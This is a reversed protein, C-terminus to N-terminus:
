DIQMAYGYISAASHFGAATLEVDTFGARSLETWTYLERSFDAVSYCSKLLAVPFGTNKFEKLTYGAAKLEEVSCCDRLNQVPFNVAKLGTLSIGGTFMEAGSFGANILELPSYGAAFLESITYALAKLDVALAGAGKLQVVPVHPKMVILIEQELGMYLLVKATCGAEVLKVVNDQIIQYNAIDKISAQLIAKLTVGQYKTYNSFTKSLVDWYFENVRLYEPNILKALIMLALESPGNSRNPSKFNNMPVDYFVEVFVQDDRLREYQLSDYKILLKLVTKLIDKQNSFFSLLSTIKTDLALCFENMFLPCYLALDLIASVEEHFYSFKVTLLDVFTAIIGQDLLLQGIGQSKMIMHSLLFCTPKCCVRVSLNNLLSTIIQNESLLHASSSLDKNRTYAIIFDYYRSIGPLSHLNQSHYKLFTLLARLVNEDVVTIDDEKFLLGLFSEMLPLQRSPYRQLIVECMVEMAYTDNLKIIEKRSAFFLRMVEMVKTIMVLDEKYQVLIALLSNQFSLEYFQRYSLKKSTTLDVLRQLVASVLTSNDRTRYLAEKLKNWIDFNALNENRIELLRLLTQVTLEYHSLSSSTPGDGGNAFILEVGNLFEHNKINKMVAATFFETNGIWNLFGSSNIDKMLKFVNGVVEFKEPEDLIESFAEWVGSFDLWHVTPLKLVMWNLPFTILGALVEADNPFWSRDFEDELSIRKEFIFYLNTLLDSNTKNSLVLKPFSDIKACFELWRHFDFEIMGELIELILESYVVPNESCFRYCELCCDYTKLLIFRDNSNQLKKYLCRLAKCSLTMLEIDGDKCFKSLGTILLKLVDDDLRNFDDKGLLKDNKLDLIDVCVAKLFQASVLLEGDREQLLNWPPALFVRKNEPNNCLHTALNYIKIRLKIKLISDQGAKGDVNEYLYEIMDHFSCEVLLTLFKERSEPHNLVALFSTLVTLILDGESKPLLLLFSSMIEKRYKKVGM